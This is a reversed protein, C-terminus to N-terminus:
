FLGLQADKPGERREAPVCFQDISLDVWKRALGYRQCSARFLASFTDAWEGEGRMRHKWRPDNLRGGRLERLRNLVKGRRQPFERQLWELFLDKVPGPLRVVIYQASRAGAQAAAKLIEPMEEDTLGPILPAVNVAVPIGARDLTQIAKLRHEPRSTRPEMVSILEPRLSTVSVTVHVLNMSALDSLLDVDRTVLHNKTIISVPNRFDLLVQLVSRTLKLRREVPQYPDTNGSLAIAQPQWSRKSLAEALLRPAERKVLIRTEFDLGASFGLYEHSPRAYCYICGHECGRYPNISYTFPVDPSDNHALISRSTDDLFQTPVQRLEDEGLEEPDELYHLRDFRNPPNIAAGRGRRAPTVPDVPEM